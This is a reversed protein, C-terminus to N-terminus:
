GRAIRKVSLVSRAVNYGVPEVRHFALWAPLLELPVRAPVKPNPGPLSLVRADTVVTRLQVGPKDKLQKSLASKKHAKKM